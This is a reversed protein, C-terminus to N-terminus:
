LGHESKTMFSDAKMCESGALLRVMKFVMAMTPMAANNTAISMRYPVRKMSSKEASNKEASSAIMTM